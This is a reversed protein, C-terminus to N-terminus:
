GLFMSYLMNKLVGCLIGYVFRYWYSLVYFWM